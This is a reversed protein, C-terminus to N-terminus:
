VTSHKLKELPEQAVLQEVIPDCDFNVGTCAPLYEQLGFQYHAVTNDFRGGYALM